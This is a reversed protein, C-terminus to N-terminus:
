RTPSTAPIQTFNHPVDRLPTITPPLCSYLVRQRHHSIYIPHRGQDELRMSPFTILVSVQMNGDIRSFGPAFNLERSALYRLRGSLLRLYWPNQLSRLHVSRSSSRQTTVSRPKIILFCRRLSPILSPQFVDFTSVKRSRRAPRTAIAWPHGPTTPQRRSPQPLLSM